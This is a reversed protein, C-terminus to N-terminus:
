AFLEVSSELSSDDVININTEEHGEKVLSDDINIIGSKVRDPKCPEVADDKKSSDCKWGYVQKGSGPLLELRGYSGDTCGSSAQWEARALGNYTNVEYTSSPLFLLLLVAMFAAALCLSLMVLGVSSIETVDEYDLRPVTANNVEILLSAAVADQALLENLLWNRIVASALHGFDPPDRIGVTFGTRSVMLLSRTALDLSPEELANWLVVAIRSGPVEVVSVCPIRTRTGLSSTVFDFSDSGNICVVTPPDITLDESDWPVTDWVTKVFDSPGRPTSTSGIINFGTVNIRVLAGGFVSATDIYFFGNTADRKEDCLPEGNLRYSPHFIRSTENAFICATLLTSTTINEPVGRVLAGESALM